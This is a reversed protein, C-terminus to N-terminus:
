LPDREHGSAFLDWRRCAFVHLGVPLGGSLSGVGSHAEKGLRALRERGGEIPLRRENADRLEGDRRQGVPADDVDQLAVAGGDMLDRHRSDIGPLFVQQALHPHEIRRGDVRRLRRRPRQARPLRHDEALEVRLRQGRRNTVLPVELQDGLESRAGGHRHRQDGAAVREARQRQGPRLRLALVALGLHRERFAERASRRQGHVVRHEERSLALCARIRFLRDSAQAVELDDRLGGERMEVEVAEQPVQELPDAPDHAGVGRDREEQVLLSLLEDRAPGLAELLVDLRALPNPNWEAAAERAPDGLLAPRDEDGIDALGLQEVREQGLFPQFRQEAHREEDLAPEQADEVDPRHFRPEEALLVLAGQLQEGVADRERDLLRAEVLVLARRAAPELEEGFRALQQAGREVVRSCQPAQAREGHRVEPVPAQDVDDVGRAAELAQGDRVGVRLPQGFVSGEAFPERRGELCEVARAVDDAGPPGLQDVLDGFVM